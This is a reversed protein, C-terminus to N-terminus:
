DNNFEQCNCESVNPNQLLFVKQQISLASPNSAFQLFQLVTLFLLISLAEHLYWSKSKCVFVFLAKDLAGYLYDLLYIKYCSRCM